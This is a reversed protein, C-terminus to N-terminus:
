PGFGEPFFGVIEPMIKNAKSRNQEATLVQLNNWHHFGSVIDSNLPLIHDVEHPIGTDLTMKIALIYFKEIKLYDEKSFWLPTAKIKIARRKAVLARRKPKNNQEWKIRTPKRNEKNKDYDKKSMASKKERNNASWQNNKAKTKEIDRNEWKEKNVSSIKEPNNDRWRKNKIKNKSPDKRHAERERANVHDVNNNHWKLARASNCIKCISRLGDKNATEKGFCSKDKEMKCDPCYKNM